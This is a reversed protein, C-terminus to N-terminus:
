FAKLKTGLSLSNILNSKDPILTLIRPHTSSKRWSLYCLTLIPLSNKNSAFTKLPMGCFLMRPGVRKVINLLLKGVTNFTYTFHKCVGHFNVIYSSLIWYFLFIESLYLFPRIVQTIIYRFALDHVNAVSLWFNLRLHSICTILLFVQTYSKM